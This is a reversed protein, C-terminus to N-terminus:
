QLGKKRHWIVAAAYAINPHYIIPQDVQTNPNLCVLIPKGQSIGRVNRVLLTNDELQLICNKAELTMIADGTLRQGAVVDGQEFYPHMGDDMIHCHLIDTHHKKFLLLEQTIKQEDSLSTDNESKNIDESILYTVQPVIGKEYLLWELSCLVGEQAVKKIVTEAGDRPLGGYRGLEWSKYTNVNMLTGDECIDKRSLNAMNRVRRLRNGREVASSAEDTVIIKKKYTKTM